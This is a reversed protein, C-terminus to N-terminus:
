QFKPHLFLLLTMPVHKFKKQFIASNIADREKNNPTAYAISSPLEDGDKTCHLIPDVVRQNIKHFDDQSPTGNRFRRLLEGWELDDKFRYMGELEIYSNVADHWAPLSRHIYLAQSSKAVPDLQRFDGAFIINFGGYYKWMDGFERLNTDIKTLTTADIMSIEDVVILRTEKLIMQMDQKLEQTIKNNLKLSSHVTTGNILTAAVGTSATMLITNRTFPFHLQKCYVTAYKIVEKIVESKGSGGPGDLFLCLSDRNCTVKELDKKCSSLTSDLHEVALDPISQADSLDQNAQEYFTLVFHACITIFAKTQNKDFNKDIVWERISQLTSDVKKQQSVNREDTNEVDLISDDTDDLIYRRSSIILRYLDDKSVTLNSVNNTATNEINNDINSNDPTYQIFPSDFIADSSNNEINCVLEYGCRHSGRDRFTALSISQPVCQPSLINNNEDLNAQFQDSRTNSDALLENDLFDRLALQLNDDSEDDSNENDTEKEDTGEFRTTVKALEDVSPNSELKSCNRIDQIRQLKIKIDSSLSSYIQRLKKVYSREYQLDDKCRYATFTVLVTEAYNEMYLNIKSTEDLINCKFLSTDEFEYNNIGATCPSRRVLIHQNKYGPHNSQFKFTETDYDGNDRTDIKIKRVEYHTFFEYPSLHELEEPRLLYHYSSAELFLVNNQRNSLNVASSIKFKIDNKSLVKKLELTPIFFITDSFLFRSTNMILFKAMTASIVNKSNHVLSAGLVRSLAESHNNDFKKSLLRRHLFDINASYDCTDDEQIKKSQYKVAYFAQTHSILVSVNSNCMLSKSVVPCNTNTMVDFTDRRPIVSYVNREEKEGTYSYWEIKDDPHAIKTKKNAKQPLHYRCEKRKRKKRPKFCTKVHTGSHGNFCVDSIIKIRENDIAEGISHQKITNLMMEACVGRAHNMRRRISPDNKVTLSGSFLDKYYKRRILEYGLEESTWQKECVHCQAIAGCEQRCGERHRLNRLRQDDKIKPEIERPRVQSTNNREFCRHEIKLIKNGLLSTSSIKNSYEIISKMCERKLKISKFIDERNYPLDKLWLLIHVHLTKRAQEEVAM